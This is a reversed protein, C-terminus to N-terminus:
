IHCINVLGKSGTYDIASSYKWHWTKEVFGAKVPNNHIYELKQEKIHNSWLEIPKNHHQWFQNSSNDSNKLAANKFTKLIWEKRSEQEHNKIASMLEKATYSKFDRLLDEPNQSTSEFILHLHNTMIVWAYIKMGKNEICYNLNKVVLESYTNRTFVDIWDVVAFSIFYIGNPNHFKYNRSM